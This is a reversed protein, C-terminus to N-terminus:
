LLFAVADLQQLARQVEQDQPRQPESGGVSMRNGLGDLTARVVHQLHLLSRQVRRQMAQNLTPPNGEVVARRLVVPAGLEIVQGGFAAFLELDLGAPPVLQSPAMARMRRGAAVPTFSSSRAVFSRQITDVLVDLIVDLALSLVVDVRSHRGLLCATLRQEAKAVNREHFLVRARNPYRSSQVLRALIDAVRQARQAPSAPGREDADEDHREAIPAFVATNLTTCATSSLGSGYAFGSRITM